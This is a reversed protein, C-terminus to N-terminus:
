STLIRRITENTLSPNDAIDRLEKLIGSFLPGRKLNNRIAEGPKVEGSNLVKLKHKKFADDIFAGFGSPRLVGLKCLQFGLEGASLFPRLNINKRKIPSYSLFLIDEDPQTFVSSALNPIRICDMSHSHILRYAVGIDSPLHTEVWEPSLDLHVPRIADHANQISVVKQLQFPMFENISRNKIWQHKLDRWTSSFFARNGTRPYTILGEETQPHTAEFIRQVLEQAAQYSSCGSTQRLRAVVDFTSLPEPVIWGPDTSLEAALESHNLVTSVPHNSFVQHSDETLFESLEIPAGFVATLGADRMSIGPFENTWLQRIQFRNQLRKFLTSFDIPSADSFLRTLADSSMSTLHSRKIVKPRLEKHISWAIFDGSPDSDTAVIINVAHNAERRLENRLDLKDPVARKGLRGSEANYNPKWLFGGTPFVYVYDPVVNQLRKALTPSEVILLTYESVSDSM